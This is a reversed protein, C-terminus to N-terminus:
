EQPAQDGRIHIPYESGTYPSTPQTYMSTRMYTSADTYRYPYALNGNQAHTCIPDNAQKKLAKNYRTSYTILVVISILSAIILIIGLGILLWFTTFNTSATQAQKVHMLPPQAPTPTVNSTTLVASQGNTIRWQNELHIQDIGLAQTLDQDFTQQPNDILKILHAMKSVGYTDYMYKVLNYSQAYALYALDGNAPFSTSIDNLRILSHTALGKDWRANLEPERFDQNYVALGEDFWTPPTIGQAILEHFVLHTLEHPMDRSLTEDNNDMVVISAEHLAPMAEGGVWEYSGPALSGHFAMDTAYVWLNITQNLGGGLNNSIKGIDTTAINLVNQGFESPRNYWNVQLMGQTLHQWQFRTDVTTFQQQTDSYTDGTSDGFTWNYTVQVGPPVFNNQNTDQHWSVTYTNGQRNITGAHTESEGDPSFNMVINARNITGATDQVKAQLDIYDPFNETYTRSTVIIQNSTHTLGHATVPYFLHTILVAIFALAIFLSIHLRRSLMLYSREALSQEHM